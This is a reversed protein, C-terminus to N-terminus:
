RRKVLPKARSRKRPKSKISRYNFTKYDKPEKGYDKQIIEQMHVFCYPNPNRHSLKTICGPKKCKRQKDNWYAPPEGMLSLIDDDQRIFYKQM